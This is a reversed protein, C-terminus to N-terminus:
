AFDAWIEKLEQCNYCNGICLKNDCGYKFKEYIEKAEAKTEWGKGEAGADMYTDYLILLENMKETNKNGMSILNRRCTQDKVVSSAVRRWVNIKQGCIEKMMM